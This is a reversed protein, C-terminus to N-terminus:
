SIPVEEVQKHFAFAKSGEKIGMLHLFTVVDKIKPEDEHSQKPLVKVSFLIFIRGPVVIIHESDQSKLTSRIKVKRQNIKIRAAQSIRFNQGAKLENTAYSKWNM